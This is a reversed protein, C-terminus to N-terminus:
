KKYASTIDHKFSECTSSYIMKIVYWHNLAGTLFPRIQFVEMAALNTLNVSTIREDKNVKEALNQIGKRAKAMRV